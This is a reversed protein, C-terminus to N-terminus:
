SGEIVIIIILMIFLLCPFKKLQLKYGVKLKDVRRTDVRHFIGRYVPTEM